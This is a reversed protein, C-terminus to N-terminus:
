TGFCENPQMWTLSKSNPLHLAHHNMKLLHEMGYSNMFLKSFSM